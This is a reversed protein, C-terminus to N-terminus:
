MFMVGCSPMPHSPMSESQRGCVSGTRFRYLCLYNCLYMYTYTHTHIYIYIHIYIYLSLSIDQILDLASDTINQRTREPMMRHIRLAGSQLFYRRALYRQLGWEAWPCGCGELHHCDDSQVSQYWVGRSLVGRWTVGRWAAGRRAVGRWAVGRWAM